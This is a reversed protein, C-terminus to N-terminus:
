NEAGLLVPVNALAGLMKDFMRRVETAGKKARHPRVHGLYYEDCVRAVTYANQEETRRAQEAEERAERRATRANAAPDAGGDRESKANVWAEIAASVSMGPWRGLRLQRMRGDVPSKFRYVWSLCNLTAVVRLGPYDPSTLHQGVPLLKISRADFSM